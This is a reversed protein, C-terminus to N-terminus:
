LECVYNILLEQLKGSAVDWSEFDSVDQYNVRSDSEFFGLRIARLQKADCNVQVRSYAMDPNVLDFTIIEGEDSINNVDIFASGDYQGSVSESSTGPVEIWLSNSLEETEAEVGNSALLLMAVAVVGPMALRLMMEAGNQVFEIFSYLM